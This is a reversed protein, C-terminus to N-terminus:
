ECAVCVKIAAADENGRASRGYALRGLKDSAKFSCGLGGTVWRDGMLRVSWRM